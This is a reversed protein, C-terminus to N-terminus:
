LFYFFMFRWDLFFDISAGYFIWIVHIIVLLRMIDIHQINKRFSTVFDVIMQIIFILFVIIAGIFGFTLLGQLYVNHCAIPFKDEIIMTVIVNGGFLKHVLNQNQFYNWYDQWIVTRDSTLKDFLGTDLYRIQEHVRIILNNVVDFSSNPQIHEVQMLGLPLIILLVLIIILAKKRYCLILYILLCLINCLVATMSNTALLFYYLVLLLPIRVYWRHFPRLILVAFICIDFFFGAYNPDGFTAFYRTVTESRIYARGVELENVAGSTFAYIGAAVAIFVMMGFLKYFLDKRERLRQVLLFGLLVDAVLNFGFRINFQGVAFLSFLIFVLLAPFYQPRFRIQGIQIIIKALLLYSYLRYLPTGSTIYLQDLFFIFVAMLVYFEDHFWLSIMILCLCITFLKSYEPLIGVAFCFLCALILMINPYTLYSRLNNQLAPITQTFDKWKEVKMM